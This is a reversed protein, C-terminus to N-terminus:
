IIRLGIGATAYTITPDGMGSLDFTMIYVFLSVRTRWTPPKAHPQCGLGTFHKLLQSFKLSQLCDYLLGLNMM